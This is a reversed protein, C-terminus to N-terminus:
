GSCKRLAKVRYLVHLHVVAQLDNGTFYIGAMDAEQHGALSIDFKSVKHNSFSASDPTTGPCPSQLAFM